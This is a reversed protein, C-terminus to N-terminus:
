YKIIYMMAINRPRTETGGAAGSDGLAGYYHSDGGSSSDQMLAPTTAPHTHEKLADAQSSGIARGADIGRLHDWGRIFEGRLDPLTFATSTQGYTNGYNLAAYLAPYTAKLLDTQGACELWGDPPTVGAYANVAGPPVYWAMDTIGYGSVTTPIGALTGFPHPYIKQFLINSSGINPLPTTQTWITGANTVGSSVAVIAMNMTLMSNCDFRRTWSGSAVVYIGNEYQSAQNKVLVSQGVSLAIGDITQAGALSISATTAVICAQKIGLATMTDYLYKTRNALAQPAGNLLVDTIDAQDAIAPVNSTFVSQEVIDSM